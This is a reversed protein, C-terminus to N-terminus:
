VGLAEEIAEGWAREVMTAGVRARYTSSGHLDSPISDLDAITARGLDAADVDNVATGIVSEEAASAHVATSGLGILGIGCRRVRDDDDLEVAIVAGAIAFDGHRRAIERV